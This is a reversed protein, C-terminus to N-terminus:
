KQAGGQVPAIVLTRQVNYLVCKTNFDQFTATAATIMHLNLM